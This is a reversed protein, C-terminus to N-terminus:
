SAAGGLSALFAAVADPTDLTEARSPPPKVLGLYLAVARYAPPGHRAWHRQM